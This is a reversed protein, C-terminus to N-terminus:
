CGLALQSTILPVNKISAFMSTTQLCFYQNLEFFIAIHKSCLIIALTKLDWTNCWTESGLIFYFIHLFFFLLIVYKWSMQKTLQAFNEM